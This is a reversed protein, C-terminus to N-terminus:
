CDGQSRGNYGCIALQALALLRGDGECVLVTEGAYAVIVPQPTESLFTHFDAMAESPSQEDEMISQYLIEM